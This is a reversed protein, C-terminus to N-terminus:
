TETTKKKYTGRKKRKIKLIKTKNPTLNFEKNYCHIIRARFRQFNNYGNSVRMLKKIQSNLGEIPGNSLRIGNIRIFSNLIYPKWKVIMQLVPILEPISTYIPNNLLNNLLEEVLCLDTQSNIFSYEMYFQHAILLHNHISLLLKQIDYKNVYSKLKANREKKSYPKPSKFLLDSFNKLLYYETTGSPFLKMIRCRIDDIARTINQLVHFSDIAITASPFHNKAIDFYPDWMDIIIYEVNQKEKNLIKSFYASVRLKRRDELIDIIKHNLFDFIVVSYPKTFQHKNYFEDISIVKTLKKRVPNIYTDFVNQVTTPTLNLDNAVSLFTANYKQLKLLIQRIIEHSLRSQKPCYSINQSYTNDCLKCKYRPYKIFLTTKKGHMLIHKIKKTKWEKLNSSECNCSPCPIVKRKVKIFVNCTSLNTFETIEDIESTNISLLNALQTINIM